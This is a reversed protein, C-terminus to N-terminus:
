GIAPAEIVIAQLAALRDAHAPEFLPPCDTIKKQSAALKLAFSFCTPEGCEKCNNQPLLQYVAMPTPRQRIEYDPTIEDRREWTRNVTKILGQIVWEAETRDELNGAAIKHSHFAINRGGKKWTLAKAAHKYVAGRLSANLYPLVESIDTALRAIASFREAGPECPPTFVELDYDEILKM